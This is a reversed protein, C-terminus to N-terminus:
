FQRVLTVIVLAISTLASSVALTEQLTRSHKEPKQPVFIEAGPKVPPYSKFFLFNRTQDVSGNAYVIFVNTRSANSAFGGAQSIYGRMGM